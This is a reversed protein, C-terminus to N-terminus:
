EEEFSLFATGVFKSSKIRHKVAHEEHQLSKLKEDMELV